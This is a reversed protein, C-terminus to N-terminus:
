VANINFNGIKQLIKEKRFDSDDSLWSRLEKFEADSDISNQVHLPKLLNDLTYNKFLFEWDGEKMSGLGKKYDYIFRNGTPDKKKRFANYEDM